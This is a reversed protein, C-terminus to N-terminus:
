TDDIGETNVRYICLTNINHMLDQVCVKFRLEGVPPTAYRIGFFANYETNLASLKKIGRVKGYQTAVILDDSMEAVSTDVIRDRYLSFYCCTTLFFRILSLINM